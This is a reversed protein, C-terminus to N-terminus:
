VPDTVALTTTVFGVQHTEKTEKVCTNRDMSRSEKEEREGHISASHVRMPFQVSALAM